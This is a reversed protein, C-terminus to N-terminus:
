NKKRKEFIGQFDSMKAFHLPCNFRWNRLYFIAPAANSSDM